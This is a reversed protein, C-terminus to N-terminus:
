THKFAFVNQCDAPFSYCFCLNYDSDALEQELQQEWFGSTERAHINHNEVDDVTTMEAIGSLCFRIRIFVHVSAIPGLILTTPRRQKSWLYSVQGLERGENGSDRCHRKVTDM